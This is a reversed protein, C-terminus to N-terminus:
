LMEELAEYHFSYRDKMDMYQPLKKLVDGLEKLQLEGEGQKKEFKAASHNATFHQCDDPIGRLAAGFHQNRYKKMIDDGENLGLIKKDKGSGIAINHDHVNKVDYLFPGYHYDRVLPSVPDFSRDLILFTTTPASSNYNEVGQREYM